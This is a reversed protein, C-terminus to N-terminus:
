QSTSILKDMLCEGDVYNSVLVELFNLTGELEWEWVGMGIAVVCGCAHGRRSPSAEM